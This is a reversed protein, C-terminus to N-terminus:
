QQYPLSQVALHLAILIRSRALHPTCATLGLVWLASLDRFELGALAVFFVCVCFFLLLLVVRSQEPSTPEIPWLLPEWGEWHKSGKICNRMNHQDELWWIVKMVVEYSIKSSYHSMIYIYSICSKSKHGWSLLQSGSPWHTFYTVVM